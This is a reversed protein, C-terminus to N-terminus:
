QYNIKRSFNPYRYPVVELQADNFDVWVSHFGFSGNYKNAPSKIGWAEISFKDCVDKPAFKIGYNEELYKRYIRGINHDEEFNRILHDNVPIINKDDRLIEHLRKSRFSFGGNGCGKGDNYWHWWGGVIDYSLFEDTWAKWNLVYSDPQVILFYPTDILNVLEKLVFKNYAAKSNLQPLHLLKEAGFEIYKTSIRFSNALGEVDTGTAGVITVNPLHLPKFDFAEDMPEGNTAHGMASIKGIHQVVSPKAVIVGKGDAEHLKSADFDWNGIPKQLAPLVYKEYEQKNICINIGSAYKKLFYDEHEEIIPNRNKVTTNFGSVINDPFRKKLDLLREIFNNSVIGDADLNIVLDINKKNFWYDYGMGLSNKIGNRQLKIIRGGAFEFILKQTEADNSGDDVILINDAPVNARKVSDLCERLYEPRNFSTIILGYTM